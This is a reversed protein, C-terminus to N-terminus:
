QTKVMKGILRQAGVILECYYVGKPLESGNFQRKYDGASQITRDQLRDVEQGKMDYIAIAVPSSKTLTYQIFINTAFPNPAVTVSIQKKERSTPQSSMKEAGQRDLDVIYAHINAKRLIVEIDLSLTQNLMLELPVGKINNECIPYIDCTIEEQFPGQEVGEYEDFNTPTKIFERLSQYFDCFSEISIIEVQNGAYMNSNFYIDYSVIKNEKEVQCLRTNFFDSIAGNFNDELIKNLDIDCNTDVDAEKEDVKSTVQLPNLPKEPTHVKLDLKAEVLEIPSPTEIKPRIIPPINHGINQAYSLTDNLFFLAIILMISLRTAKM